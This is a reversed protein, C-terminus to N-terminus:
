LGAGLAEVRRGTDSATGQGDAGTRLITGGGLVESGSYFVVAQGPAVARQPRAFFVHATDGIPIVTAAAGESRYRVRAVVEARGAPQEHTWKLDGALLSDQYLSPEPGVVLRNGAVDISLVYLRDPRDLRLGHRQGITYGALGQHTGLLKGHMDVIDGPLQSWRPALFSRYDGDVFCIDMSEPKAFVPLGAEVAAQRVQDKTLRGVPFLLRAMQQQGLMYLFYSQDKAIDLGKLLRYSGAMHEIRAYHGTALYSADLSLARQLLLSFKLHENCAVCPNPTRGEQYERCFYDVVHSKFEAEFNLVYFPLGLRRCVAEADRVDEVGCCPRRQAGKGQREECWLHMHVGVVDYGAQKLLYASVSSDVGGSMAVIVRQSMVLVHYCLAASAAM